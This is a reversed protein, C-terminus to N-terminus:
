CPWTRGTEVLVPLLLEISQWPTARYKHLHLQSSFKTEMEKGRQLTYNPNGREQFGIEVFISFYRMVSRMCLFEAEAKGERQTRKCLFSPRCCCHWRLCQRSGVGTDACVWVVAWGSPVCQVGPGLEAEWQTVRISSIKM